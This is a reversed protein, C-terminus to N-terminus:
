ESKAVKYSGWIALVIVTLANCVLNTIQVWDVV